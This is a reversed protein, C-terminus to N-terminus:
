DEAMEEELRRVHEQVGRDARIRENYADVRKCIELVLDQLERLIEMDGDNLYGKRYKHGRAKIREHIDDLEEVFINDAAPGGTLKKDVCWLAKTTNDRPIDFQDKEYSHIATYVFDEHLKTGIKVRLDNLARTQGWSVLSIPLNKLSTLFSPHNKKIEACLMRKTMKDVSEIGYQKAIEKLLATNGKTKDDCLTNALDRMSYYSQDNNEYIIRVIKAHFEEDSIRKKCEKSRRKQLVKEAHHMLKTQAVTLLKPPRYSPPAFDIEVVDAKQQIAQIVTDCDCGHMSRGNVAVVADGVHVRRSMEIDGRTGDKLAYFKKVLAFWGDGTNEEHLVIGLEQRKSLRLSVVEPAARTSQRKSTVASSQRKSSQRKSSQRKSSQRKRPTQKGKTPKQVSRTAAGKKDRQQARKKAAAKAMATQSATPM